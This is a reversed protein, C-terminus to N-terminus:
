VLERRYRMEDAVFGGLEIPRELGDASWGDTEYFRKARENGSLVWLAASTYGLESLRDRAAAVLTRGWGRSWATPDLYIAYLEGAGDLDDDRATGLTAFGQISGEAVAVITTPVGPGTGGFKYRAARHEPRMGDLLEDPLLGRYAAQWSRVHVRAVAIRDAATADRLTLV